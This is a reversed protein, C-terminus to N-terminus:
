LNLRIGTLEAYFTPLALVLYVIQWGLSLYNWFLNGEGLSHAIIIAIVGSWISPLVGLLFAVATTFFLGKGRHKRLAKQTLRATLSGVFPAYFLLLFGYFFLESIIPVLLSGLFAGLAPLIFGILYDYWVATNFKKQLKRQCDPCIYGTPTRRACKSCIPANCKACRLSTEVKPHNVCHLVPPTTM